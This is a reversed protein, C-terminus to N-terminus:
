YILYDRAVADGIADLRGSIQQLYGALPSAIITTADTFTLDAVLRGCQRESECGPSGSSRGSIRYLCEETRAIGHRVSAPFRNDLLLFGVVNQADVGAPNVKRHMELGSVSRLASWWRRLEAPGQKGASNGDRPFEGDPGLDGACVLLHRTTQCARELFRGTDLWDRAESFLMTRNLIGQFLHSGNRVKALFQDPSVRMLRDADWTNFELWAVNISEWMESSLQERITRANDRARGWLPVIADPNAPDFVHWHFASLDDSQGQNGASGDALRLKAWGERTDGTELSAHYQVDLIRALAEAREVYRGIWFCNDADRSLM